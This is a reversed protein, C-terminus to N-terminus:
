VCDTWLIAPTHMRFAVPFLPPTVSPDVMAVIIAVALPWLVKLRATTLLPTRDVVKTTWTSRYIDTTRLHSDTQRGTRIIVKCRFPKQGLYKVHEIMKVGGLDNECTFTVPLHEFDCSSLTEKEAICPHM